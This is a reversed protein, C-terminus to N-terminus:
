RSISHVYEDDPNVVPGSVEAQNMSSAGDTVDSPQANNVSEPAAM